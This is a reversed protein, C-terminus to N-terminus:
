AEDDSLGSQAIAAALPNMESDDDSYSKPTEAEIKAKVANISVDLRRRQRDANLTMVEVEQGIRLVSRINDIREDSIEAIYLRGELGEAVQLYAAKEEFRVVPANFITGVEVRDGANDWPDPTLQKVGLSVRGRDGDISLVKVQITQGIEFDGAESPRAPRGHWQLDSIHCLGEVGETLKVFLGYDEIRTIEGDAVSGEPFDTTLSAWPNNELARLSLSIRGNEADAALVKMRVSQGEALAESPHSHRETWSLESVHCLGEIGPQIEVFAGFNALRTVTGDFVTGPEIQAMLDRQAADLIERRSLSIRGREANIETITVTIMQGAQVVSEPNDVHGVALESVHCLGDVGGLDVFAGFPRVSTVRGEIVQGVELEEMRKAERAKRDGEVLSRRSLEPQGERGDFHIVDFDFEQGVAEFADERRFGSERGPMFCRLGYAEVAFGGRVVLNVRGRVRRKEKRWNAVQEYVEILAAKAISVSWTGDDIEEELLVRVESGVEVTLPTGPLAADDRDCRGFVDDGIRVYIWEEDMEHVVADVIRGEVVGEDPFPDAVIPEDFLARIEPDIEPAEYTNM